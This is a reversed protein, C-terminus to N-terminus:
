QGRRRVEHWGTVTTVIKTLTGSSADIAGATLCTFQATISGAVPITVDQDLSWQTGDTTSQILAGASIQTGARGTLTCTAYSSIAQKRKIFYIEGLADQFSGEATRPDFQQALYLVESDKQNVSAVQSDIIQGQPTEPDVNLLPKGNEKFANQWESAIQERLEPIESVEFGTKSNFIIM